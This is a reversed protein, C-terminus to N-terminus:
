DPRWRYLWNYRRLLGSGRMARLALSRLFGAPGGMHYHVGNRRAARQTRATRRIRQDEYSRLGAAPDDPSRALCNALVAADEIAMAAGQALYPLMPHAADGLLTVPGAGWHRLPACDYLAWKQWPGAAGILERALAQWDRPAFRTLLEQPEGPASWGPEQWQDRVVAVVNILAGGRVPYHVLHAHRGLWLNIAHERLPPSVLEAPVLARWATHRAFRPPDRHGLRERLASWLGDAAILVGGHTETTQLGKSGAVTVGNSHIAFDDVRVGLQLVVQPIAMVSEHLVRQLDSRHMVWFPAGFQRAAATGLAACALVRGSRAHLIRLEEPAVVYPALLEEFGLDILVRSANPSLQIGAGIAELRTAQEIVSVRFGRLALAAAASLGGIGAGAIVVTRLSALAQV